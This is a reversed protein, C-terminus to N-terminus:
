VKPITALFTILIVIIGILGGALYILRVKRIIIPANCEMCQLYASIMMALRDPESKCLSKTLIDYDDPFPTFLASPILSVVCVILLAIYFFVLGFLSSNYQKQFAPEVSVFFINLSIMFTVFLSASAFFTRATERLIRLTNIQADYHRFVEEFSLKLGEITDDKKTM